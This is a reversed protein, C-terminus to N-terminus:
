VVAVAPNHDRLFNFYVLFSILWESTKWPFVKLILTYSCIMYIKSFQLSLLQMKILGYYSFNLSMANLLLSTHLFLAGSIQLSHWKLKSSFMLKNMYLIFVKFGPLSVSQTILYAMGLYWGASYSTQTVVWWLPPAESFLWPIWYLFRSFWM